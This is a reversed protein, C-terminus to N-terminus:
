FGDQLKDLNGVSLNVEMHKLGQPFFVYKWYHWMGKFVLLALCFFM